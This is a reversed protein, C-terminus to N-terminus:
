LWTGAATVDATTVRHETLHCASGATIDFWAGYASGVAIVFSTSLEM